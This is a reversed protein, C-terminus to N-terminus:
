LGSSDAYLIWGEINRGGYATAPIYVRSTSVRTIPLPVVDSGDTVWAQCALVQGASGIGGYHLSQADGSPGLVDTFRSMRVGVPGNSKYSGPTTSGMLTWYQFAAYVDGTGSRFFDAASYTEPRISIAGSTGVSELVLLASSGTKAAQILAISSSYAYLDIQPQGSTFTGTGTIVREARAIGGSDVQFRKTPTYTNGSTLSTNGYFTLVNRDVDLQGASTARATSTGGSSEAGFAFVMRGDGNPTMTLAYQQSNATPGGFRAVPTQTAPSRVDLPRTPANNGVGLFGGETFRAIETGAKAKIVFTDAPATDSNWNLAWRGEMGSLDTGIGSTTNKRPLVRFVNATSEILAEAYTSGDSATRRRLNQQAAATATATEVYLQPQSNSSISQKQTFTGASNYTPLAFWDDGDDRFHEYTDTTWYYRGRTGPSLSQLGVLTGQVDIAAFDELQEFQHNYEDRSFTDDGDGYIYFEFRESSTEAM